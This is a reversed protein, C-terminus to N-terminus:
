TKSLEQYYKTYNLFEEQREIKNRSEQMSYYYQKVLYLNEIVRDPNHIFPYIIKGGLTEIEITGYNFLLEIFNKQEKRISQVSVLDAEIRREKGWLPKKEIDVVKAGEFAYRDNLWDGLHWLFYSLSFINFLFYKWNHLVM